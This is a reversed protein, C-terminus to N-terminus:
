RRPQAQWGSPLDSGSRDPNPNFPPQYRLLYGEGDKRVGGGHIVAGADLVMVPKSGLQECLGAIPDLGYESLRNLADAVDQWLAFEIADYMVAEAQQQEPDRM